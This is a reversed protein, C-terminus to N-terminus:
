ASQFVKKKLERLYEKLERETMQLKTMITQNKTIAEKIKTSFKRMQLILVGINVMNDVLLVVLIERKGKKHLMVDGISKVYLQLDKYILTARILSDTEFFDQAQRAVGYLAAGISGLDWYNLKRDFRSDIAIIKADQDIAILGYIYGRRTLMGYSYRIEDLVITIENEYLAKPVFLTM